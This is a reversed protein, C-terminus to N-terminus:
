SVFSELFSGFRSEILQILVNENNFDKVFPFEGWVPIDTMKKLTELNYRVSLDEDTSAHNLIVGAIPIERHQLAEISLLTHNLTGLSARAILLVPLKLLQILDVILKNKTLPVLLGGAGEVLLTTHFRSLVQFSSLIKDISIEKQELEAAIAPALPAEFYYPNILDLLDDANAMKKLFLSDVRILNQSNKPDKQCGSEVPKMVGVNVKESKLYRCISGALVTKGVNTDTGTIFFGQTM